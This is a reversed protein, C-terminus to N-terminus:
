SSSYSPYTFREKERVESVNMLGRRWRGLVGDDGYRKRAHLAFM